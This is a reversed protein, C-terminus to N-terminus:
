FPADAESVGLAALAAVRAERDQIKTAEIAAADRAFDEPTAMPARLHALRADARTPRTSTAARRRLAEVGGDRAASVAEGVRECGWGGGDPLAPRALAEPTIRLDAPWPWLLRGGDAGIVAAVRPLEEVTVGERRLREVIAAGIPAPAATLRLRGGTAAIMAEEVAVAPLDHRHTASRTPAPASLAEVARAAPTEDAVRRSQVRVPPPPTKEEKSQDPVPRSPVPGDSQWERKSHSQSPKAMGNAMKGDAWRAKAGAKGAASRAASVEARKAAIQEATPQDAIGSVVQWGTETETWVGAAVLGEVWRAVDRPPMSTVAPLCWRDIRGDTGVRNSYVLAEIHLLAACHGVEARVRLLRPDAFINDCLKTWTM